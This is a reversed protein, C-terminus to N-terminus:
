RPPGSRGGRGGSQVTYDAPVQFLSPDPDGRVINVVRYTTKGVRPDTSESLVLMKLDPSTWEESVVTIPRENGIAGAAITTTRRVGEAWVGEITRGPLQEDTHQERTTELGPQTGELIVRQGNLLAYVRDLQATTAALQARLQAGPPLAMERVVRRDADLSLSIGAVPDSISIAPSGSPRNEERRVRGEADRFVRTSSRRVIRNGDSLTQTSENIVEASYPAGRVVDGQWSIRFPGASGPEPVRVGFGRGRGEQAHTAPVCFVLASALALLHFGGISRLNM